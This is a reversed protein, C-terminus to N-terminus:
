RLQLWVNVKVIQEKEYVNIIQTLALGFYVYLPGSENLVPTILANYQSERGFLSNM